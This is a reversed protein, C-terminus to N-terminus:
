RERRTVSSIILRFSNIRIIVRRCFASRLVAKGLTLVFIRRLLSNSGLASWGSMLSPNWKVNSIARLIRSSKRVQTGPIFAYEFDFRIYRVSEAGPSVEPIGLRCEGRPFVTTQSLAEGFNDSSDM